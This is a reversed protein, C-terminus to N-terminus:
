PAGIPALLVRDLAVDGGDAEVVLHSEGSPLDVRKAPLDVLRGQGAFAWEAGAARVHGTVGPAALVRPALTFAGASPAPLALVMTARRPRGEHATPTLTLVR